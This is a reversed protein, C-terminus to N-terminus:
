WSSTTRLAYDNSALARRNLEKARTILYQTTYVSIRSVYSWTRSYIYLCWDKALSHNTQLYCNLLVISSFSLCSSILSRPPPAFVRLIGSPRFPQSFLSSHNAWSLRVSRGFRSASRNQRNQPGTKSGVCPCQKQGKARRDKAVQCESSKLV